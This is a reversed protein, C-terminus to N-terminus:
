RKDRPEVILTGKMDRHGPGCYESCAFDFTGTKNAVFEVTVPEGGKPITTKVKLQKIAFGHTGDASKLTIKVQDGEQVELTSPEYQFRSATIEFSRVAPHHPEATWAAAGAALILAAM